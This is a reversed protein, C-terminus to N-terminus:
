GAAQQELAVAWREAMRAYVPRGTEEAMWRVLEVHIRVYVGTAPYPDVDRDLFALAYASDGGGLDFDDVLARASREGAQWMREARASGTVEAFERLGVLTFLFGNLVLSPEATPYEEFWLHGRWVRKSGGDRVPTGIADVALRGAEHYSEQETLAWARALVSLANGQAMASTWGRELTQDASPVYYEFDYRWSGDPEQAEVLWDAARLLEVHAGRSGEALGWQAVTVPNHLWPSEESYRIIPVGDADLKADLGELTDIEGFYLYPEITPAGESEPEAPALAGLALAGVGVLAVTLAVLAAVLRRTM